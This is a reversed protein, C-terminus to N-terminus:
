GAKWGLLPAVDARDVGYARLTAALLEDARPLNGASAREGHPALIARAARWDRPVPLLATTWGLYRRYGGRAPEALPDLWAAAVPGNLIVAFAHADAITSCRVVYCSNLPVTPDNASLVVARPSRALDAWVVRPVTSSASETRFVTWWPARGRLDARAGLRTRWPALWRSAHAPLASLPQGDTGHPWLIYERPAAAWPRVEEGRLVPRLLQSEVCGIRGQADTVRTLVGAPEALPLATVVFAENCGCKVGLHPRGLPSEALPVCAARLREFADRADPPLLLWPSGASDDFAFTAATPATWAIARDHLHIAVAVGRGDPREPERSGHRRRAVLLSPYAAADFAARGESWDELTLIRSEQQLLRRLGGGALSRWLKAPLLLALTGGPRLLRLSREAFLAALDVQAAFGRGAQAAAAGADWGADRFVAYRRRL